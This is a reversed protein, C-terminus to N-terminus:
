KKGMGSRDRLSPFYNERQYKNINKKKKSLFDFRM